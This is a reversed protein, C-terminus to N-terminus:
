RLLACLEDEKMDKLDKDLELVKVDGWLLSYKLAWKISTATADKDLAMIVPRTAWDRIELARSLGIGTGLLSVANVHVSARVASPVDEVVVTPAYVHTKYWSMGEENEDVYTLVKPKAGDISRLCWGRHRHQPSRISMAIRHGNWDTEYWYPPASVGWLRYLREQMATSLPTTTGDFMARKKPVLIEGKPPTPSTGGCRTAFGRLTCRAKFCNYLIGEDTKSISLTNIGHCSPCDTRLTAGRPLHMSGLMIQNYYTM